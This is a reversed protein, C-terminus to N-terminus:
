GALLQDGSLTNGPEDLITAGLQTLKQFFNPFTKRVCNPNRIRMGPVRLGLMAFCMAMRHDDYTEIQAGHIPGPSVKLTDGDEVVNAGCRTLETRLAHVRECEQLRLRGLDTFTKPQNSFPALVIATMISDGLDRRRSISNPFKRILEPFRADIQLSQKMWNAIHIKSDPLLWGAGWFYSASSADAEVVPLGEQRVQRVLASTLEVYSSDETGAGNVTVEWRGHPAVLLLASAFQSSEQISVSCKAGAHPGSGFVIAPLKDNPSDIRYGLQRLAAFLGEQPREHMRPTGSIRYCGSGLCALATLFRAANGANQVMLELPREPSGGRAISNLGTSLFRITRNAPENADVDLHMRIGLRELCDRMAETDESWLAGKLEGPQHSLAALILARNTISKSGPITVTASALGPVPLIEILPPLPV